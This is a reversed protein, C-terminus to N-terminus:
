QQDGPNRYTKKVPGNMKELDKGLLVGALRLPWSWKFNQPAATFFSIV